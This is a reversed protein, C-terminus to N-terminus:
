SVGVVCRSERRPGRYRPSPEIAVRLSAAPARADAYLRRGPTTVVGVENRIVGLLSGSKAAVL